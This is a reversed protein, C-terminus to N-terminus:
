NTYRYYEEPSICEYDDNHADGNWPTYKFCDSRKNTAGFRTKNSNVLVSRLDECKNFAGEGVHTVSAPIELEELHLCFYFAEEGIIKLSSPLVVSDISSYAFANDGIERLSQPFVLDSLGTCHAFAYKGIVKLSSPFAVNNIHMSKFAYDGIKEVGDPIVISRDNGLYKILVKDKIYFAGDVTDKKLHGVNYLITYYDESSSRMICTYRYKSSKKWSNKYFDFMIYADRMPKWGGMGDHVSQSGVNIRIGVLKGDRIVYSEEPIDIHRYSRYLEFAEDETFESKMNEPDVHIIVWDNAVKKFADLQQVSYEIMKGCQPDDKITYLKM